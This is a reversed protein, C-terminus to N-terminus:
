RENLVDVNEQKQSKSFALYFLRFVNVFQSKIANNRYCEMRRYAGHRNEFVSIEFVCREETQPSGREVSKM